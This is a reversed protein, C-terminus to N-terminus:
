DDNIQGGLEINQRYTANDSFTKEVKEVYYRGNMEPTIDSELRIIMGPVVSPIGFM